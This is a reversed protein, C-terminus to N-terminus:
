QQAANGVAGRISRGIIPLNIELPQRATVAPMANRYVRLEKDPHPVNADVSFRKVEVFRDSDLVAQLNAMSPLDTWFDREALVTRVGARNIADAIDGQALQRDIVGLERRVAIDLLLKDARIIWYRRDKDITRMNFIFSGDRKGSFLIAGPEAHEAVWGAAERYGHVEPVPAYVLTYALNGIALGWCTATGLWGRLGRAIALVACAVVPLLLFVTFRAEKLDIASFFLYGAGFWSLLVVTQWGRLRFDGRITCLLGYALALALTM